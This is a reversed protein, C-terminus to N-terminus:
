LNVLKSYIKGNQNVSVVYLGPTFGNVDITEHVARCENMYVQEGLMNTIIAITHEENILHINLMNESVFINALAIEPTSVAEFDPTIPMDPTANYAYDKVTTHPTNSVDLRVWGYHTEGDVMLRLGAFKNEVDDWLGYQETFIEAFLEAFSDALWNLSPGIENTSMAYAFFVDSGMITGMTGAVANSTEMDIAVEALFSSIINVISFDETGDNNLDLHYIFNDGNLVEDPDVDTYIVQGFVPVSALTAGALAAYSRLKSKLTSNSKM